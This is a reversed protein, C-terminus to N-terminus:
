GKKERKTKQSKRLPEEEEEEYEEEEEWEEYEITVFEDETPERWKPTWKQKKQKQEEFLPLSESIMEELIQKTKPHLSEFEKGKKLKSFDEHMKVQEQERERTRKEGPLSTPPVESPKKGKKKEV